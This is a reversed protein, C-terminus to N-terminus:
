FNEFVKKIFKLWYILCWFILELSWHISCCRRFSNILDSCFFISKVIGGAEVACCGSIHRKLNRKFRNQMVLLYIIDKLVLIFNFIFNIIFFIFNLFICSISHVIKLKTLKLFYVDTVFVVSVRKVWLIHKNLDHLLIM